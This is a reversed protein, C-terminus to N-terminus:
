CNLNSQKSYDDRDMRAADEMGGGMKIHPLFRNNFITPSSSVTIDDLDRFIIHSPISPCLTTVDDAISSSRTQFPKDILSPDFEINVQQSPELLDTSSDFSPNRNM